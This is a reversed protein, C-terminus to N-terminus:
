INTEPGFNSSKGEELELKGSNIKNRAKKFESASKTKASELEIKKNKLEEKTKNLQEEWLIIQEKNPNNKIIEETQDQLNKYIVLPSQPNILFDLLYEGEYKYLNKLSTKGNAFILGSFKNFEEIDKLRVPYINGVGEIEQPLM